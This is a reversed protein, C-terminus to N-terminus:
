TNEGERVPSPHRLEAPIESPSLSTKQIGEGMTVRALLAMELRKAKELIGPIRPYGAVEPNDTLRFEPPTIKSYDPANLEARDLGLGKSFSSLLAAFARPDEKKRAMEFGEMALEYFKYEKWERTLTNYDGLLRQVIRIDEYVQTQELKYRKKVEERIAKVSKSPSANWLGYVVRLRKLREREQVRLGAAVMEEEDSFLHLRMREYDSETLHAM